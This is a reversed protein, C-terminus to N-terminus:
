IKVKQVELQRGLKRMKQQFIFKIWLCSFLFFLNESILSTFEYIEVFELNSIDIEM